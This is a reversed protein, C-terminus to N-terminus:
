TIARSNWPHYMRIQTEGTLFTRHRQKEADLDANTRAFEGHLDRAAKDYAAARSSSVKNEHRIIFQRISAAPLYTIKDGYHQDRVRSIEERDHGPPEKHTVYMAVDGTPGLIVPKFPADSFQKPNECYLWTGDNLQVAFQSMRHKSNASLTALASPDDNSWTINMAQLAAHFVDRFLKRWLIGATLTVLFAIVVAYVPDMGRALWLMATAVLGFALSVFFTDVASHSFRIGMYAVLYAAYGCVLSTQIQWPLNQTLEPM